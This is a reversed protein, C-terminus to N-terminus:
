NQQAQYENCDHVRFINFNCYCKSDCDRSSYRKKNKTIDYSTCKGKINWYCNNIGSKLEIGNM